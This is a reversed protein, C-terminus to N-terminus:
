CLLALKKAHSSSMIMDSHKLKQTSTWKSNIGEEWGHMQTQGM